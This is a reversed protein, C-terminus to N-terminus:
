ERKFDAKVKSKETVIFSGTPEPGSVAGSLRQFTAGAEPFADVRVETGMEYENGRCNPPDIRIQGLDPPRVTLSVSFCPIDVCADGRGDIASGTDLQDANPITPCNDVDGCIGDGDQDNRPDMPCLDVASCLGDGDPDNSADFACLDCADGIGDLDSDLQSAAVNACNDCVDPTGDGDSDEKSGLEITEILVKGSQMGVALVALRGDSPLTDPLKLMGALRGAADSELSAFTGSIEPEERMLQIEVAEEPEFGSGSLAISLGPAFLRMASCPADDGPAIELEGIVPPVKEDRPQRARQAKTTTCLDAPGPNAPFGNPGVGTLLSALLLQRGLAVSYQVQGITNPHFSGSLSPRPLPNDGQLFALSPQLDNLWPLGNASCSEHGEFQEIVPVFHLGAKAAQQEIVSTFKDTMNNLFRREEKSILKRSLCGPGVPDAFIHPYGMVFISAAPASERAQCYTELLKPTAERFWAQMVQRLSRGDLPFPFTACDPVALCFELVPGFGVDNGGISLTVLDTAANVLPIGSADARALQPPLSLAKDPPDGNRRVNRTEDGSCALFDFRADLLAAFIPGYATLSQHCQNGLRDTGDFYPPAGEGSAFSDGLAAYRIPVTDPSSSGDSQGMGGPGMGPQLPVTSIAGVADIDAGVSAGSRNGEAPDDTLRVFRFRDDPTFGFADLDIGSTNGGVKGVARFTEGDSSVQVFTDEVDPGVEFIFLDAESDGSGTLLNDSFELTISGGSGLSVFPCPSESCAGIKSGPVEPPGLASEPVANPPSPPKAGSLGPEYHVVVDAFSIDGDPFEVGGILDARAPNAAVIVQLLALGLRYDLRPLWLRSLWSRLDNSCM